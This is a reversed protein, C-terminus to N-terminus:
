KIEKLIIDRIGSIQEDTYKVCNFHKRPCRKKGFKSCPRCKLDKREMWHNVGAFDYPFYPFFGLEPSTSGWLTILNKKLAASIHMMGTDGAFVFESNSILLASQQLNLKGVLNLINNCSSTIIEGAEIEKKGGILIVPYIDNIKDIIRIIYEPPVTKTYHQTGVAFVMYKGPLIIEDPLKTDESIYFDLGKNDNKINFRILTDINRDVIHRDPLLNIKFTVYLWKRFDLKKLSSSPLRLNLKIMFSRMNNHLDIVYDYKESKLLEITEKLNDKFTIIKNINPDNEVLSVNQDKTLYHIEHSTQRALCRIAPSTLVIDGISSLRILLIKM